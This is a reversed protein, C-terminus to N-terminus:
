LVVALATADLFDQLPVSAQLHLHRGTLAAAALLQGGATDVAEVQRGDVQLDGPRTLAQRLAAYVESVTTADFRAPLLVPATTADMDRSIPAPVAGGGGEGSGGAVLAMEARHPTDRVVGPSDTGGGGQRQPAAADEGPVATNRKSRARRSM